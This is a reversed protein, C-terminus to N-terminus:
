HCEHSPPLSIYFKVFELLFLLITAIMLGMTLDNLRKGNEIGRLLIEDEWAQRANKENEQSLYGGDEIFKKGRFTISFDNTNQNHRAYKEDVLYDLMSRVEPMHNEATSPQVILHSTIEIVSIEEGGRINLFMLIRDLNGNATGIIFEM